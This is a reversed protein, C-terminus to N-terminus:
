GLADHEDDFETLPGDGLSEDRICSLWRKADLDYRFTFRRKAVEESSGREYCTVKSKNRTKRTKEFGLAKMAHGLKQHERAEVRAIPIDLAGWSDSAYIYGDSEGFFEGVQDTFANEVEREELVLRGAEWLAQPLFLDAEDAEAAVAEAWL